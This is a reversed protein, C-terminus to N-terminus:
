RMFFKNGLIRNTANLVALAAGRSADADASLYCGVLRQSPIEGPLALSVIVVHADFARVAKVGLLEFRYRGEVARNLAAMCADAACRLEGAQSTLGESEGLFEREDHRSLVVRARCHGSALRHMEFESFRLRDPFPPQEAM